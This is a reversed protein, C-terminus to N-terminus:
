YTGLHDGKLFRQSSAWDNYSNQPDSPIKWSKEKGVVFERAECASVLVLVVALCSFLTKLSAM